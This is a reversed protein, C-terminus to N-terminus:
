RGRAPRDWHSPELVVPAKERFSWALIVSDPLGDYHRLGRIAGYIEAYRCSRPEECRLVGRQRTFDDWHALSAEPGGHSRFWEPNASRVFNAGVNLNWGASALNAVGQALVAAMALARLGKGLETSTRAVHWLFALLAYYAALAGAARRLGPVPTIWQPFAFCFIGFGLIWLLLPSRPGKWLRCIAVVITAAFAGRALWHGFEVHLLFFSYSSPGVFLDRLTASANALVQGPDGTFGGAGGRFLGAGTEPDLWLISPDKLYLFAAAVVFLAGCASAIGLGLFDRIGRERNRWAFLALLAPAYFLVAPYCTAAFTLSAGALGAGWCAKWGPKPRALAPVLLLPLFQLDIGFPAQNVNFYLWSSSTGTVLLPVLADRAGLWGRLVRALALLSLLHLALRLWKAMYISYGFLSWAGSILAYYGVNSSISFLSRQSWWYPSRVSEAADELPLRELYVLTFSAQLVFLFAVAVWLGLRDRLANAQMGDAATM